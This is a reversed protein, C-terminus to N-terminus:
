VSMHFIEPSFHNEEEQELLSQCKMKVIAQYM